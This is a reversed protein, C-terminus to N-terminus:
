AGGAAAGLKTLEAGLQQFVTAVQTGFTKLVVICAVAVLAVIISYEIFSQGARARARGAFAAVLRCILLHARMLVTQM